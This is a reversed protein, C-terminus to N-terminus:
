IPLLIKSWYIYLLQMTYGYIYRNISKVNSSLQLPAILSILICVMTILLGDSGTNSVYKTM